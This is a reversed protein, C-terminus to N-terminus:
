VKVLRKELWAKWRAPDDKWLFAEEDFSSREYVLGCDHCQFFPKGAMKYTQGIRGKDVCTLCKPSDPM